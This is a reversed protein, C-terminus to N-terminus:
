PRLDQGHDIANFRVTLAAYLSRAAFLKLFDGSDIEEGSACPIASAPNGTGGPDIINEGAEDVFVLGDERRGVNLFVGYTQGVRKAMAQLVIQVEDLNRPARSWTELEAMRNFVRQRSDSYSQKADFAIVRRWTPPPGKPRGRKRPEERCLARKKEARSKAQAERWFARRREKLWDLPAPDAASPSPSPAPWKIKGPM